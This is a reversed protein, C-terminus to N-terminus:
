PSHDHAAPFLRPAFMGTTRRYSRYSIALSSSLFKREEMIAAGFYLLLMVVCAACSVVHLTACAAGVWNLSYAAYFPHRVFRYPGTRVLHTPLDTSFALSVREKSTSNLASRFVGRSTALLVIATFEPGISIPGFAVLCGADGLVVAAGVITLLRMMWPMGHPRTFHARIAVTFAIANLVFLAGVIVRAALAILELPMM